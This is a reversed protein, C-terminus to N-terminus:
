GPFVQVRVAVVAVRRRASRTPADMAAAVSVTAATVAARVGSGAFWASLAYIRFMREQPPIVM